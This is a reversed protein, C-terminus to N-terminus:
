KTREPRHILQVFGLCQRVRSRQGEGLACSGDTTGSKLLCNAYPYCTGSQTTTSGNCASNKFRVITFLNLIKGERSKNRQSISVLHLYM